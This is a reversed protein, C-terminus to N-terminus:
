SPIPTTTCYSGSATRRKSSTPSAYRCRNRYIMGKLRVDCREIAVTYALGGSVGSSLYEIKLKAGSDKFRSAAWDYRASVESWGKEYAGV